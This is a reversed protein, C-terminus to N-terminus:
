AVKAAPSKRVGLDPWGMESLDGGAQEYAAFFERLVAPISSGASEIAARSRELGERSQTWSVRWAKGVTTARKEQPLLHGYGSRALLVALGVAHFSLEAVTVGNRDACVQADDSLANPLDVYARQRRGSTPM